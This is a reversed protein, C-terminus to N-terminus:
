SQGGPSKAMPFSRFSGGNLDLSRGIRYHRLKFKKHSGPSALPLLGVGVGWHYHRNRDRISAVVLRISGNRRLIKAIPVLIVAYALVAFIAAAIAFALHPHDNGVLGIM